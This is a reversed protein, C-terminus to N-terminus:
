YTSWGGDVPIVAGNVFSSEDCALFLAVSAIEEPQGIRPNLGMGAAQKKAGDENIEKMSEGISTAVGGPAIGNCRIGDKAYMFATNKTYGVVAHKSATYTAGARGGFLGGLSTVNIIRGDKKALMTPLVKRTLYMVGDTNIAFVRKWIADDVDAAAAMNDMIGANNVLVDITGYAALAKEVLHDVSAEDAVNGEVFIAEGSKSKIEEVVKEARAVNIDTVVVKAGEEAFLKATAAGMGTGSGTVIAVKSELRKM